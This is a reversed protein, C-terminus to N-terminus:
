RLMMCCRAARHGVVFNGGSLLRGGEGLWSNLGSDELLNRPLGVRRLM